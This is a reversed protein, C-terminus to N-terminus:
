AIDIVASSNLQKAVLQGTSTLSRYLVFKEPPRAPSHNKRWEGEMAMLFVNELDLIYCRKSLSLDDLTPDYQFAMDKFRLTGMSIDGGNAWGTGSYYGNARMEKEMADLFDSGCVIFNPMGGYRRLQRMEYQIVQLLAGGDATASTVEDGGHGALTGDIAVAAAYAATRARNRWWGMVSRDINGVTGTTPDEAVLHQIGALAKADGTGDGYILSNMGDRYQEGLDKLKDDLMNALATMERRSHSRTQGGNTDVVSIGDIKLETHSLTLGIHHERWPYAARLINAPTYFSVTDDHTYGAVADSGGSPTTVAAGTSSNRPFGTWGKVGISIDGKGGPFSKRGRELRDLLPRQQLQQYFVQGKQFYYDLAANAISELEQTNFAM